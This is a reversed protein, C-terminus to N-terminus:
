YGGAELVGLQMLLDDLLVAGGLRVRQLSVWSPNFRNAALALLPWADSLSRIGGAVKYGVLGGGEAIAELMIRAAQPTVPTVLRDTCSKLFDAGAAIADRSASRVLQPDRLEGSELNVVLSALHGCEAKCAAIMEQGSQANGSLLARFPYLLEIEDAGSFLAARIDNVVTDRHGNGSPFNVQAIVKVDRAQLRDLTTRALCVFRPMVCVGAVNGVSTVGRRCLSVIREECGMHGGTHLELLGLAHFARQETDDTM